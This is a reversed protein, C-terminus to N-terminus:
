NDDLIETMKTTTNITGFLSKCTSCCQEAQFPVDTGDPYCFDKSAMRSRPRIDRKAVYVVANCQGCRIEDGAKLTM